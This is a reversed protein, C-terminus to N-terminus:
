SQIWPAYTSSRSSFNPSRLATNLRRGSPSVCRLPQQLTRRTPSMTTKIKPYESRDINESNEHVDDSLSTYNNLSVAVRTFESDSENTELSLRTAQLAAEFVPSYADREPSILTSPSSEQKEKEKEEKEDIDFSFGCHQIHEPSVQPPLGDEDEIAVSEVGFHSQFVLHENPSVPFFRDIWDAEERKSSPSFTKKEAFCHPTGDVKCGKCSGRQIQKVVGSVVTAQSAVGVLDRPSPSLEERRPAKDTLLFRLASWSM